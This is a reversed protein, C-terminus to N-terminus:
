LNTRVQIEFKKNPEIPYTELSNKINKPYFIACMTNSVHYVQKRKEVPLGDLIGALVETRIHEPNFAYDHWVVISNEHILHKFINETDKKVFEYTHDGDIFILDFKQNLKEFDFTASNGFLHTINEKDKSFHGHLDAYKKPLGLEKIEESSLNLTYCKKAIEAVNVVSEGRWTGIEFYNCNEINKALSKLLLIDTPISGGGLFSWTSLTENFNPFLDTFQIASLQQQKPHKKALYESWYFESETILNVLSPKKLLMSFAKFVKSLKSM